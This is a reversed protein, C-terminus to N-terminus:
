PLDEISIPTDNVDTATSRTVRINEEPEEEEKTETDTTVTETTATDGAEDVDGVHQVPEETEDVDGIHQVTDAQDENNKQTCTSGEQKPIDVEVYM